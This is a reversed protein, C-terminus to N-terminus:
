NVSGEERFGEMFGWQTPLSCQERSGCGRVVSSKELLSSQAGQSGGQGDYKFVSDKRERLLM